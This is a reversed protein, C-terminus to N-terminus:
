PVVMGVSAGSRAPRFFESKLACVEKDLMINANLELTTKGQIRSTIYWIVYVGCQVSGFQHQVGSYKVAIRNRKPNSEHLVRLISTIFKRTKTSPPRGLSDWYETHNADIYLCVWHKGTNLIVGYRLYRKPHELARKFALHIVRLGAATEHVAGCFKFRFRYDREYDKLVGQINESSLLAEVPMIPKLEALMKRQLYEIKVWKRIIPNDIESDAWHELPIIEPLMLEQLTEIIGLQTQHKKSFPKLADNRRGTDVYVVQLMQRLTHLSYCATSSPTRFVACPTSASAPLVDGM